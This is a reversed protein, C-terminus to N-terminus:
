AREVLKFFRSIKGDSTRDQYLFALDREDFIRFWEDWSIPRLTGTGTFGPFDIRLVGGDGSRRRDVMAPWGDREEAWAQITEHDTTPTASGQTRGRSRSETKGQRKMSGRRGPTRM